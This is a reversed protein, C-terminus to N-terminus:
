DREGLEVEVSREDDGRQFDVEVTEGPEHNFLVEVFPNDQDIRQGDITLIIDGERIGAEDAGSGEEVSEVYAGYDVPLDNQAAIDFTIPITGVGFYPYVVEGDEILRGSIKIVTSSPIAFFLGQAIRGDGTDTVGLTNVGVVEGALNFLPGGSNGPSIAADHQILNTYYQANAGLSTLTDGSRGLASVIGQTVTNTFAGLPSGIALVTQGVQLADSDGLPVTAPVDGEMDLVALDSIEDAGVLKAERDEGDALIVVFDEGNAVVHANTVIHGDDDIIFGTGAGASQPDATEDGVVQRNIVTVVAPSVRKVVEVPDAQPGTTTTEGSPQDDQAGVRDLGINVPAVLSLAILGALALSLVWGGWGFWAARRTSTERDV